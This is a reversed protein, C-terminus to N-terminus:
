LRYLECVQDITYCKNEIMFKQCFMQEDIVLGSKTPTSQLLTNIIENPNIQSFLTKITARINDM